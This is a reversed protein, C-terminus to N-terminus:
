TELLIMLTMILQFFRLCIFLFGLGLGQEWAHEGNVSLFHSIPPLFFDQEM